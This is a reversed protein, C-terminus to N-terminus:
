RNEKEEMEKKWKGERRYGTEEKDRTRKSGKRRHERAKLKGERNEM